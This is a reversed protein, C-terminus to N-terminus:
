KAVPLQEGTVQEYLQQDDNAQCSRRFFPKVWNLEPTADANALCEVLIPIALEHKGSQCYAVGLLSEAIQNMAHAPASTPETLDVLKQADDIAADFRRSQLEANTLNVLAQIAAPHEPAHAQSEAEVHERLIPIAEDFMGRQAYVPGLNGLVHRRAPDTLRLHKTALELTAAFLELAAEENGSQLYIFALNQAAMITDPHTETYKEKLRQYAATKLVLAAEHDGLASHCSALNSLLRQTEAATPGFNQEYIPRAKLFLELAQQADGSELYMIALSGLAIGHQSGDAVESNRYASEVETMQRIAAQPEGRSFNVIAQDRRLKLMLPHNAGYKDEYVAEAQTYLEASRDLQGLDRLVFAFNHEVTATKLSDRGYRGEVLPLVKEFARAAEETRGLEQFLMAQNVMSDLTEEHDIGFKAEKAAITKEHLALSDEFMEAASYASALNHAVHLTAPDAFGLEQQAIEFAEELVGVAQERQDSTGYALGLLNLVAIRTRPASDTADEVMQFAEEAADLAEDYEGLQRMAESITQLLQAKGAQDLDSNGLFALANKLVDLASMSIGGGEDPQTSSFSNTVINLVENSRNANAVAEQRAIEALYFGISTGIVGALLLFAIVTAATVLGKNKYVFKRVRYARSPPRADVPENQLFHQIDQAFASASEYRRNRDKDIAKMVIWDLDGALMQELKRPEIQMRETVSALTEKKTTLRSSPRPPEKDRVLELVQIIAQERLSAEDLPTSGTLLEYLIVGLTYIDSRTDIDLADLGAQEPSMYKLTGIVQGFETFLTKDTLKQTTELAKALGFDIVKPVAKGQYETVLINGPKLDRHIIGKQHAHQVAECIQQFIELRRPVSLKNQDCYQALPVGQVWEMAFYPQGTATTGADLIRAISPHDMMALAQREAEFRAIVQSSGLGAKIVKLAVQRRVPHEQEALYVSGMGGEGIPELIRYPGITQISNLDPSWDPIETGAETNAQEFRDFCATLEPLAQRHEALRRVFEDPKLLEKELGLLETLLEDRLSEPAQELIPALPPRNESCLEKEFLDCLRDVLADPSETM